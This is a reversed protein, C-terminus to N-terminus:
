QTNHTAGIGRLTEQLKQINREALGSGESHYILCMTTKINQKQFHERWEGSTFVSGRDGILIRTKFHEDIM